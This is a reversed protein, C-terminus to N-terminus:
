DRPHQADLPNLSTKAGWTWMKEQSLLLRFILLTNLGDTFVSHTDM